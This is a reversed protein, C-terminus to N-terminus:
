GEIIALIWHNYIYGSLIKKTDSVTQVRSRIFTGSRHAQLVRSGCV